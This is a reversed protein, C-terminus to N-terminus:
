EFDKLNLKAETYFLFPKFLHQEFQPKISIM